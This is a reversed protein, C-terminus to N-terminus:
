ASTVISAPRYKLRLNTLTSWDMLCWRSSGSTLHSSLARSGSLRRTLQRKNRRKSTYPHQAQQLIRLQSSKGLPGYDLWSRIGAISQANLPPIDCLRRPQNM